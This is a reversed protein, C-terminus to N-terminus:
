KKEIGAQSLADNYAAIVAKTSFTAGSVTDFEGLPDGAIQALLKDSFTTSAPVNGSGHSCVYDHRFNEKKVFLM